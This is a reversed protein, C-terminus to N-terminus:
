IASCTEVPVNSVFDCTQEKEGIKVVPAVAVHTLVTDPEMELDELTFWYIKEELAGPLNVLESGKGHMEDDEKWTTTASNGESDTAKFILSVLEFDKSDRVVKVQLYNPEETEEWCTWQFDIEMGTTDLCATGSSMQDKIFPVVWVLIMAAAAIVIVILLVTAILPAIGKKNKMM